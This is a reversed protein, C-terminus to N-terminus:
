SGSPKIQREKKMRELEPTWKGLLRLLEESALMRDEAAVGVEASITRRNHRSLAEMAASVDPHVRGAIIVTQTDKRPRGVGRAPPQPKKKPM